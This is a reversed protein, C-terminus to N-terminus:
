DKRIWAHPVSVPLNKKTLFNKVFAGRIAVVGPPERNECIMIKKAAAVVGENKTESGSVAEHRLH